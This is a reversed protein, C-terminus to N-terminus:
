ESRRADSIKAKRQSALWAKWQPVSYAYSVGGTLKVLADLVSVNQMPVTIIKPGGGVSLGGGGLGGGGGGGVGGTQGGFSASTSGPPAGTVIQFKHTTVLADILPPIASADNMRSLGTAARNVKVNDKDKLKQIFVGVAAEHPLKELHDLATLRVEDAPDELSITALSQIAVASGVHGLADVMLLRVAEVPEDPIKQALAKVAAPDVIERFAKEAEAERDTGLWNRWMKIQQFWGKEALELKRQEEMLTIEQPLKWDGKYKVYGRETMLQDQTKWVGDQKTYGLIKRVKDHDPDLELVRKLHAERIDRLNNKLLWECLAWQGEVTDAYQDRIKDYEVEAPRRPVFRKVQDKRLTIEGGAATKIVYKTRPEENANVLTGEIQGGTTLQFVDARATTALLLMSLMFLHKMPPASHRHSQGSFAAAKLIPVNAWPLCRQSGITGNKGSKGGAEAEQNRGM